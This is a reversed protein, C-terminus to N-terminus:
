DVDLELIHLEETGATLMVELGGCAPCTGTHAQVESDKACSFCHLVAPLINFDLVAGEALTEKAQVSFAFQLAKPEICSLRGCSMMVSNVKKFNQRVAYDRIINIISEALYLEHM